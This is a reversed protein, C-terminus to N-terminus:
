SSCSRRARWYHRKAKARNGCTSMDCWRRKKTRSRDLFLWSCCDSNCERILGREDSVLLEAASRVVPWLVSELRGKAGAWGMRFREGEALIRHNPGAEALAGNLARLAEAPVRRGTAIAAFIQFLHERLALALELKRKATRPHSRAERELARLEKEDWSGAQRSFALLDEFRQLHEQECRPRDELTNIFDLCLAGGTLDFSEQRETM